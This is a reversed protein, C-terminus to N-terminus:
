DAPIALSDTNVDRTTGDRLRIKTKDGTKLVIRALVEERRNPDSESACTMLTYWGSDDAKLYECYSKWIEDVGHGTLQNFAAAADKGVAIDAVYKAMAEPSSLMGNETLQRVLYWSQCYFMNSRQTQAASKALFDEGTGKFLRGIEVLSNDKQCKQLLGIWTKNPFGPLLDVGDFAAAEFYMALGEDLWRVDVTSHNVDKVRNRFFAHFAEHALTEYMNKTVANLLKRNYDSAGNAQAEYKNLLARDGAINKQIVAVQADLKAREDKAWKYANPNNKNALAERRIYEEAAHIEAEVKVVADDVRRKIEQIKGANDSNRANIEAIGKNWQALDSYGLIVNPEPFYFAPNLVVSGTIAKQLAQYEPLSGALIVKVQPGPSVPRRFYDEYGTAMADLKIASETVFRWPATSEILFNDTEVRRLTHGERQVEKSIFTAPRSSKGSMIERYAALRANLIPRYQDAVLTKGAVKNTLITTTMVSTRDKFREVCVMDLHAGDEKVFIGSVKRGSKYTIQDDNVGLDRGILILSRRAALSMPKNTNDLFAGLDSIASAADKGFDGLSKVITLKEADTCTKFKARLAPVTKAPGIRVLALRAGLQVNRIDSGLADVLPVIAREGCKGIKEAARSREVWSAGDAKLAKMQDALEDAVIERQCFLLAVTLCLYFCIRKMAVVLLKEM